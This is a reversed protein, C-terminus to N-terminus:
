SFLLVGCMEWSMKVDQMKGPHADVYMNQLFHYFRVRLLFASSVSLPAPALCSPRRHENQLMAMTELFAYGLLFILSEHLFNVFVRLLFQPTGMTATKRPMDCRPSRMKVNSRPQNKLNLNSQVAEHLMHIINARVCHRELDTQTHFEADTM